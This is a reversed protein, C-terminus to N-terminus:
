ARARKKAKRICGQEGSGPFDGTPDFNLLDTEYDSVTGDRTVVKITGYLETVYLLPDSPDTGPDPVFAINVPLQFGGAVEEVMYGPQLPTWAVDGGPPSAPYTGFSRVAWGSEENASDRVRARLTYDADFDLETNGNVFDGDALHIHVMELGDACPAEWAVESSGAEQIEWDTCEHTDSDGGSDAFGTAEM